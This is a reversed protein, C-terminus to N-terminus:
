RVAESLQVPMPALLRSALFADQDALRQQYAQVAEEIRREHEHRDAVLAIFQEILLEVDLKEIHQCFGGLGMDALLVDNKDAYGVSITPRGLKLACVVNHFRTAVVIDSVKLRITAVQDKARQVRRPYLPQHSEREPPRTSLRCASPLASTGCIGSIIPLVM